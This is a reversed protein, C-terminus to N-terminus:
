PLGLSNVRVSGCPKHGYPWQAPPIPFVPHGRLAPRCVRGSLPSITRKLPTKHKTSGINKLTAQTDFCGFLDYKSQIERAPKASLDRKLESRFQRMTQKHIMSNFVSRLLQTGVSEVNDNFFSLKFDDVNKSFM